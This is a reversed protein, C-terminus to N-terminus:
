VMMLGRYDTLDSIIEGVKIFCPPNSRHNKEFYTNTKFCEYEQPLFPQSVIVPYYKEHVRIYNRWKSILYRLIHMHTM